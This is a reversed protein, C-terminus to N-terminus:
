ESPPYLQDCALNTVNSTLCQAHRLQDTSSNSNFINTQSSAISTLQDKRDKIQINIKQLNTDQEDAQSFVLLIQKIARKLSKKKPLLEFENNVNKISHLEFQEEIETQNVSIMSNLLSGLLKSQRGKLKSVNQDKIKTNGNSRSFILTEDIPSHTSWIVGDECHYYFSGSSELAQDLGAITKSQTFDGSFSCPNDSPLTPTTHLELESAHAVPTLFLGAYFIHKLFLTLKHASFNSTYM